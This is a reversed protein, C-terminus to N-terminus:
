MDPQTGRAVEYIRRLEIFDPLSGGSLEVKLLLRKGDQSREYSQELKLGSELKREVILRDDKWRAKLEVKGIGRVMQDAKRGDPHLVLPSGGESEFAVTSDTQTITFAEAAKLLEQLTKRTEEGGGTRGGSVGGRGGSVGGRGGGAGRGGSKASQTSSGRRAVAGIAAVPDDSEAENLAWQGTLDPPETPIESPGSCAPLTSVILTLAIGALPADIGVLSIWTRM